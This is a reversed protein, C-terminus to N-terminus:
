YYITVALASLVNQIDNCFTFGGGGAFLLGVPQNGDDTTVLSGSDGADSFLGASGSVRFQNDFRAVGQSGYRVNISTAVLDVVGKTWGTTRGSKQVDTGIAAELAPGNLTELTGASRLERRDVDSDSVVAAIACDVENTGAFDILIFRTLNAVVDAPCTGGDLRAQQAIPTGEPSQNSLAIVHNNSLLYVVKGARVYCGLTGASNRTCNGISVGGPVPRQKSRFQYAEIEGTEEVDTAVQDIAEPILSSESLRDRAVKERVLVKLAPKGTRKGSTIKEGIGVGVINGPAEPHAEAAAAIEITAQPLLTESFRDFAASLADVEDQSAAIRSVAELKLNPRM